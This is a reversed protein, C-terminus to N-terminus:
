APGALALVEDVRTSQETLGGLHVVRAGPWRERATDLLVLRVVLLGIRFCGADMARMGQMLGESQEFELPGLEDIVLLDADGAHELLENCWDLTVTDFCWGPTAPGAAVEGGPREALRRVDGSRLDLADIAVKQGANWVGLSLVGAVKWGRNRLADAVAQCARTKGCGSDGTLIVRVSGGTM